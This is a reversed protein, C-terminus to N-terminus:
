TCRRDAPQPMTFARKIRWSPRAQVRRGKSSTFAPSWCGVTSSAISDQCEPQGGNMRCKRSMWKSRESGQHRAGPRRAASAHRHFLGGGWASERGLRYRGDRRLNRVIWLGIGFGGSRREGGREFREFIRAHQDPAIGIGHDRIQVSAFDDDGIVSVDIPRGAGFRIANSLLTRCIQEVRLRDWSGTTEGRESFTLKCRAVALEADFTGVVERVTAALDFPEPQLDIRGTSLRSVDLLRDLTELLRHLRQEIGRLQAQMWYVSPPTGATALQETKNLALRVQFALPAIPNRLEHAVTAIFEDRAGVARQLEQLRVRFASLLSGSPDHSETPRDLLAPHPGAAGEERPPELRTASMPICALITTGGDPTPEIELTGEVALARERMGILGIMTESTGVPQFGIGDDEVVLAISDGRRELLVNVSHAAAHKAVNHLAEQAIRYVSAEVEPSFREVTGPRSHFVARIGSHRSWEAVYSGLVTALGLDDLAAPRLEWAIFDLSQDIRTLMQLADAITGSPEGGGRTTTRSAELTLRLATLRQGLDDHLDRAIRRREEEQAAVLRRLLRIRSAEAHTRDAIEAALLARSEALQRNVEEAASSDPADQVLGQQDAAPSALEHAVVAYGFSGSDNRLPLITSHTYIANGDERTLWRTTSLFGQRCAQELDDPELGVGRGNRTLITSLHKGITRDGRYGLLREAGRNWSTIVGDVGLTLFAHDPLGHVALRLVDASLVAKASEAHGDPTHEGVRSFDKILSSCLDPPGVAIAM